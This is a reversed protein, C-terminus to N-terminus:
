EGVFPNKIDFVNEETPAPNSTSITEDVDEIKQSYQSITDLDKQLQDESFASSDVAETVIRIDKGDSKV